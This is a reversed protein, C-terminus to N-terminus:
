TVALDLLPAETVIMGLEVLRYSMAETSVQFRGAMMGALAAVVSRPDAGQIAATAEQLDRVTIYPRGGAIREWESRMMREPMLLHTAFKDAQWEMSEKRTNKRCVFSPGDDSFLVGQRPDSIFYTRHLSWHGAEHALTFRYRGETRADQTPDLSEDVVIRKQKMYCAGLVDEGFMSSLGDFEIRLGLYSELIAEVPIPPEPIPGHKDAFKALLEAASREIEDERLYKVRAM